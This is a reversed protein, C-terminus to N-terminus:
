HFDIRSNLPHNMMKRLRGEYKVTQNDLNDEVLLLTILVIILYVTYFLCMCIAM